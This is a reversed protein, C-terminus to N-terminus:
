ADHTEEEDASRHPVVHVATPALDDRVSAARQGHMDYTLLLPSMAM